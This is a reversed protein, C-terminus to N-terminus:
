PLAVRGEVRLVVSGDGQRQGIRGLADQLRLNGPDRARLHATLTYGTPLAALSGDVVLPGKGDDRVQVTVVPPEAEALTFLLTGLDAAAEGSVTIDQWRGSADLTELWAHRIRAERLEFHMPGDFHLSEIALLGQVLSGPLDVQADHILLAGDRQRTLTGEAQLVEGTVRATVRVDGHLLPLVATRWQLAGLPQGAVSVNEAHGHWISGGVARLQLAPLHPAAWRWAVSAPLTWAVVLAVAMLLVLASFFWTLGRM